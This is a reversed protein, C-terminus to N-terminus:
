LLLPHPCSCIATLLANTLLYLELYSVMGSDGDRRVLIPFKDDTANMQLYNKVEPSTVLSISV